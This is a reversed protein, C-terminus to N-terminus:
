SCGAGVGFATLPLHMLFGYATIVSFGCTELELSLLNLGAASKSKRLAQIQPLKAAHM